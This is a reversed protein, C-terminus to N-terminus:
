LEGVLVRLGELLQLGDAADSRHLELPVPLLQQFHKAVVSAGAVGPSLAGWPPPTRALMTTGAEVILVRSMGGGGAAERDSGSQEGCGGARHGGAQGSRGGTWGVLGLTAVALPDDALCTDVFGCVPLMLALSATPGQLCGCESGLM